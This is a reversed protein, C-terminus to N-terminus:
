GRRPPPGLRVGDTDAPRLRREPGLGGSRAPISVSPEIRGRDWVGRVAADDVAAGPVHHAPHRPHVSVTGPVWARGFPGVGDPDRSRRVVPRLAHDADNYCSPTAGGGVGIHQPWAM